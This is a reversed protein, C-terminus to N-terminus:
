ILNASLHVFKLPPFKQNLGQSVGRVKPVYQEFQSLLSRVFVESERM